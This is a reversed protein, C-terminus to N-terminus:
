LLVNRDQKEGSVLLPHFLGPKGRAHHRPCQRPLHTGRVRHLLLEDRVPDLDDEDGSEPDAETDRTDQVCSWRM